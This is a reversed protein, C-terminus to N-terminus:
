LSRTSHRNLREVLMPVTPSNPPNALATARTM